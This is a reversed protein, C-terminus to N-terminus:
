SIEVLHLPHPREQQLTVLDHNTNKRKSFASVAKHVCGQKITVVTGNTPSTIQAGESLKSTGLETYLFPLLRAVKTLGTMLKVCDFVQM